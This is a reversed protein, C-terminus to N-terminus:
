AYSTAGEFFSESVLYFEESEVKIKPSQKWNKVQRAECMAKNMYRSQLVSVGEKSVYDDVVSGHGTEQNFGISRSGLTAYSVGNLRVLYEGIYTTNLGEIGSLALTKKDIPYTRDPKPPKNFRKPPGKYM